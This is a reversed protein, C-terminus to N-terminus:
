RTLVSDSVAAEIMREVIELGVCGADTFAGLNLFEREVHGLLRISRRLDRFIAAYTAINWRTRVLESRNGLERFKAAAYILWRRAEIRHRRRVECAGLNQWVRALTEEEGLEDLISLLRFWIDHAADVDGQDFLVAALLIDAHVARRADDTAVFRARAQRAAAEAESWRQMKFLVTGCTYEAQGVENTCYRAKTFLKAALTLDALAADFEGLHRLANARGKLAHAQLSAALEAPTDHLAAAMQIAAYYVAAAQQPARDILPEGANLLHRVATESGIAARAVREPWDDGTIQALFADLARLDDAFLHSLRQYPGALLLGGREFLMDETVTQATIERCAATMEIVFRRMPSARGSRIRLVHQRSYNAAEAVVLPALDNRRLFLELRTLLDIHAVFM